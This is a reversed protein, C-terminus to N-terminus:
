RRAPVHQMGSILGDLVRSIHQLLEQSSGPSYTVWSSHLYLLHYLHQAFATLQSSAPALQEAIVVWNGIAQAPSNVTAALCNIGFIALQLNTNSGSGPLHNLFHTLYAVRAQMDGSQIHTHIHNIFVAASQFLAPSEILRVVHAVLAPNQQIVNEITLLLHSNSVPQCQFEAVSCLMPSFQRIREFLYDLFIRVQEEEGGRDKYYDTLAQFLQPYNERRRSSLEEGRSAFSVGYGNIQRGLRKQLNEDTLIIILFANFFLNNDLLHRVLPASLQKVILQLLYLQLTRRSESSVLRNQVMYEMFADAYSLLGHVQAPHTFYAELMEVLLEHNTIPWLLNINLSSFLRRFVRSLERQSVSEGRKKLVEELAALVSDSLEYRSSDYAGRLNEYNANIYLILSHINPYSEQLDSLSIESVGEPVQPTDSSPMSTLQSISLSLPAQQLSLNAIMSTTVTLSQEFEDDMAMLTEEDDPDVSAGPSPSPSVASSSLPFLQIVRNELNGPLFHPNYIGFSRTPSILQEILSKDPTELFDDFGHIVSVWGLVLSLIGRMM